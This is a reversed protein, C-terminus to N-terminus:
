IPRTPRVRAYLEGTASNNVEFAAGAGERARGDIFVGLTTATDSM